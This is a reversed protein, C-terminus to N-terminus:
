DINIQEDPPLPANDPHDHRMPDTDPGNPTVHPGDPAKGDRNRGFNNDDREFGLNDGDDDLIRAM